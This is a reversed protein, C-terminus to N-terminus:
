IFLPDYIQGHGTPGFIGELSFLDHISPSTKATRTLLGLMQGMVNRARRGLGKDAYLDPIPRNNNAYVLASANADAIDNGNRPYSPGFWRTMSIAPGEPVLCRSQVLALRWMHPVAPNLRISLETISKGSEIECIRGVIIPLVVRLDKHLKVSQAIVTSSAFREVNRRTAKNAQFYVIPLSHRGDVSPPYLTVTYRGADAEALPRGNSPTALSRNTGTWETASENTPVAKKTRWLHQHDETCLGDLSNCKTGAVRVPRLTEPLKMHQDNPDWGLFTGNAWHIEEHPYPKPDDSFPDVNDQDVPDVFPDGDPLMLSAETELYGWVNPYKARLQEMLRATAQHDNSFSAHYLATRLAPEDPFRGKALEDVLHLYFQNNVAGLRGTPPKLEELFGFLTSAM